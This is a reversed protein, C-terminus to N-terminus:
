GITFIVQRFAQFIVDILYMLLVINATFATMWIPIRLVALPGPLYMSAVYGLWIFSTAVNILLGFVLNFFLSISNATLLLISTATANIVEGSISEWNKYANEYMNFVVPSVLNPPQMGSALMSYTLIMVMVSYVFSVFLLRRGWTDIFSMQTAVPVSM